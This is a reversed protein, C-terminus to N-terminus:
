CTVVLLITTDDLATHSADTVGLSKEQLLRGDQADTDLTATTDITSHRTDSSSGHHQPQEHIRYLSEDVMEMGNGQDADNVQLHKVTEEEQQSLTEQIQVTPICLAEGSSHRASQSLPAVESVATVHAAARKLSSKKEMISEQQM